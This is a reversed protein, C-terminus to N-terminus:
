AVAHDAKRRWPVPADLERRVEFDRCPSSLIVYRISAGAEPEACAPDGTQGIVRQPVDDSVM